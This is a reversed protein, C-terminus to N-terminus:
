MGVPFYWGMTKVQLTNTGTYNSMTITIGQTSSTFIQARETVITAEIGYLITDKMDLAPGALLEYAGNATLAFLCEARTSFGPIDLTATSDANIDAAPRSVIGSKYGVYNGGDHSITNLSGSAVYFAMICRDSGNYWGHKTNSWTPATSNLIFESATLLTNGASVIASDDIYLYYWGDGSVTVDKTLVSNWYVFQDTTGSHHYVGPGIAITNADVVSFSARQLYGYRQSRLNNIQEASLSIDHLKELDAKVVGSEHLQNIETHTSTIAHLKEFDAVDAASTIAGLTTALEALKYDHSTTVTSNDAGVKVELAEISDQLNNWKASTILDSSTQDTFTDINTPFNTAM